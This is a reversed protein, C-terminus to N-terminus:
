KDASNVAHYSGNGFVMAASKGSRLAAILAAEDNIEGPLWTACCGVEGAAHADSGGVAFAAMKRCEAEARANADADTRGNRIEVGAVDTYQRVLTLHELLGRRNSRYPHACFCVGGCRRVLDFLEEAHLRGAPMENLGFVVIDGEYTYIEVGVFIPFSTKFSYAHATERLALTDHDTICVADLGKRRAEFVIEELNLRSCPSYTKEHCHLDVIVFTGGMQM